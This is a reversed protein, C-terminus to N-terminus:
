QGKCNVGSSVGATSQSFRRWPMLIMEKMIHKGEPIKGIDEQGPM